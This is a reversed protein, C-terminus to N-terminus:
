EGLRQRLLAGLRHWQMSSFLHAYLSPLWGRQRWELFDENPLAGLKQPDIVRFGRFTIRAGNAVPVEEQGAVLLGSAAIAKSFALTHQAATHYSKCFELANQAMGTPQGGPAFFKQESEEDVVDPNNDICLTLEGAGPGESFIFPYRRIYSPVYTDALWQGNPNVFLNENDRLGLIAVPGANVDIGFGIPYAQSIQPMEILNIPVANARASFSLGFKSKLGLAGHRQSDLPMPATYFAPLGTPTNRAPEDQGSISTVTAPDKAM